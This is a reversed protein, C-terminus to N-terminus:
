FRIDVFARGRLERLWAKMQVDLQEQYLENRFTNLVTEDDCQSTTAPRRRDTVKIIHFGFPSRVVSSVGGIELAFAAKEFPEVMEGRGFCGIDGDPAAKDDSHKLAFAAFDAGSALEAQLEGLRTRIEEITKADAGKPIQKLIHSACVQIGKAGSSSREECRRKADSDKLQVKGQVQFQILRAREIQTRLRDRYESWTIGQTYLAAQLQDETLNNMRLVEDIAKDIEKETVGLRDKSREIEAKVIRDDIEIDLVERLIERRRTERDAEPVDSLKAMFPEAKAELERMTIIDSEIVAAIRDVVVRESKSKGALAPSAVVVTMAAIWLENFM